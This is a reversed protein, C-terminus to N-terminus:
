PNCVKCPRHGAAIAEERSYFCQLNAPSIKQAWQCWPYHFPERKYSAIYAPCGECLNAPFYGAARCEPAPTPPVPAPTNTPQPKPPKPTFTSTPTALRPVLARTPIILIQGVRVLNPNSINNAEAIAEVTVGFREAIRSLTDGAKVEHTTVEVPATATPKVIPTSTQHPARTLFPTYTAYPILTPEPAPTPTPACGALIVVLVIASTFAKSTSM